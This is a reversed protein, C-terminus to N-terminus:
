ALTPDRHRHLLSKVAASIGPHVSGERNEFNDSLQLLTAHQVDSPAGNEEWQTYRSDVPESQFPSADAPDYIKLYDLIQASAMLLKSQIDADHQPATVRLHAKAVEFEVLPFM